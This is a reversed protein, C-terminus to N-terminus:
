NIKVLAGQITMIAGAKHTAMLNSETTLDMGAKVKTQLGGELLATMDGKMKLDMKAQLDILMDAALKINMPDLVITSNKVKLTIKTDSDITIDDNCKIDTKGVVTLKETGLVDTKRNGKVLWTSDKDITHKEDNKVHRTEDHGITTTRDHDVERTEDNLVKTHMDKQAHQRILEEGQTDDFIYENYGGGGTTSDSKWGSINKEGPLGYPPMNDGNYVCGIVIPQDPDGEIFDVIVEMGIRPTFIAGWGNGAWVQAVRCRMSRAGGMDWHFQVLIRGYQDVDIEDGAGGVVRATQPGPMRTDFTKREPVCPVDIPLFEYNGRFSEKQMVRGGSGFNEGVYVHHARICLYDKGHLGDPHTGGLTMSYGAKLAEVHGQGVYHTDRIREQRSRVKAEQRAGGEDGHRGPYDYSELAGHAHGTQVTQAADMKQTPATFNYGQVKVAATALQRKAGFAWFHEEAENAGQSTIFPRTGISLAQDNEDFLALTHKGKEHHFYFNIGYREMLRRVFSLDTERYQVTYELTEYSGSLDDAIESAYASLVDKIIEPATKEHYIRQTRRQSALWMWPRLVFRYHLGDGQIGVWQTDTVIGDFYQMVKDRGEIEVTMNTGILRDFDVVELATVAEVRYEFLDNISDTGDFRLLGFTDDALKSYLKGRRNQQSLDLAM